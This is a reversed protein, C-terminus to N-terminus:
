YIKQPVKDENTLSLYIEHFETTSLKPDMLRKLDEQTISAESKDDWASTAIAVYNPPNLRQFILTDLRDNYRLAFNMIFRADEASLGSGIAINTPPHGGRPKWYQITHRLVKISNSKLFKRIERNNKKQKHALWIEITCITIVSTDCRPKVLKAKSDPYNEASFILGPDMTSLSVLGLFLFLTFFGQTKKM